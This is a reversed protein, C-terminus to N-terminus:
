YLWLGTDKCLVVARWNSRPQISLIRVSTVGDQILIIAMSLEPLWGGARTYHNQGISKSNEYVVNKLGFTIDDLFFVRSASKLIYSATGAASLGVERGISESISFKRGM